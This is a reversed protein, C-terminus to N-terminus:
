RMARAPGRARLGHSVAEAAQKEDRQFRGAYASHQHADDGEALSGPLRGMGLHGHPQDPERDNEAENMRREIDPSLLGPPVPSSSCSVAHSTRSRVDRRAATPPTTAALAHLDRQDKGAWCLARPYRM